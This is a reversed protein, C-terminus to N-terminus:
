GTFCQFCNRDKKFNYFDGSRKPQCTWTMSSYSARREWLLDTCDKEGGTWSPCLSTKPRIPPRGHLSTSPIRWSAKRPCTCSTTTPSRRNAPAQRLIKHWSSTCYQSSNRFFFLSVFILRKSLFLIRHSFVSEATLSKLCTLEGTPGVFMAPVNSAIFTDLFFIQQATNM